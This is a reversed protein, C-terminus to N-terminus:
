ENLIPEVHNQLWVCDEVMKHAGPNPYLGLYQYDKKDYVEKEKSQNLVGESKEAIAKRLKQHDIPNHDVDGVEFGKGFDLTTLYENQVRLMEPWDLDADKLVDVKSGKRATKEISQIKYAEKQMNCNLNVIYLKMEVISKEAERLKLINNELEEVMKLNAKVHDDERKVLDGLWNKILGNLKSVEFKLHKEVYDKYTDRCLNLEHKHALQM